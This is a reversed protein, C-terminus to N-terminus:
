GDPATGALRNQAALLPTRIAKRAKTYMIGTMTRMRVERLVWTCTMDLVGVQIKM